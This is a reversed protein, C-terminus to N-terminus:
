TSFISNKFKTNKIWLLPLVFKFIIFNFPYYEFSKINMCISTFSELSYNYYSTSRIWNIFYFPIFILRRLNLKNIFNFVDLSNVYLITNVKTILKYKKLIVFLWMLMKNHIFSSHIILFMKNSLIIHTQNLFIEDTIEIWLIISEYINIFM